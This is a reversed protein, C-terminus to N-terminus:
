RNLRCLVQFCYHSASKQCPQLLPLPLTRALVLPRRSRHRLPRTRLRLLRRRRWRHWSLPGRRVRRRRRILSQLLSRPPRPPRRRGPSWSWPLRPLPLPLPLRPLPLPPLPPLSPARLQLQHRPRPASPSSPGADGARRGSRCRLLRLLLRPPLLRRFCLLPRLLLPSRLRLRRMCLQSTTSWTHRSTRMACCLVSGLRDTCVLLDHLGTATAGPLVFWPM